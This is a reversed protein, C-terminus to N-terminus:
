LIKLENLGFNITEEIDDLTSIKKKCYSLVIKKSFIKNLNKVIEYYFIQNNLFKKVLEDNIVNFLIWAAHGFNIIKLGTKIIPFESLQLENFNFTIFNKNKFFNKKQLNFSNDFLSNRIPIEMSTDHMGVKVFGDKFIVVSHALSEKHIKIKIKNLPIQFLIHTEIIEFIKNVMTASDVSIKKGMSWRPHNTVLKVSSKLYGKKKKGLFPGGSATLYVSDIKNYDTNLLLQSLSYLESDISSIKCNLKKAAKLLVNGGCIISEKNAILIEKTFNIFEFSYKLGDISSAGVIVKDFKSQKKFIKSFSYFDEILKINKFLYFKKFKERALKDSIFIYKPSFLKIQHILKKLSKNCILLEVNFLNPYKKIIKLTTTGISGTSGIVAIKKKNFM